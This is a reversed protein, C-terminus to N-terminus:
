KTFPLEIIFTTGHQLISQVRIKGAHNQIIRYTVMIGLGTGNEKTSVFPNGLKAIINEPIGCGNDSTTIVINNNVKNAEISIEGGTDPVADISNRILNIFVQKLQNSEGMILPLKEPILLSMKIDKIILQPQMLTQLEELLHKINIPKFEVPTPKALLLTEKVISEIHEVEGLIINLYEESLDNNSTAALQAFGKISTLPNRIEHAMGAALQGVVTLKEAQLIRNEEERKRFLLLYYAALVIILIVLIIIVGNRTLLKLNEAHFESLPQIVLLVWNAEKLPVYSFFKRKGDFPAVIDLTGEGGKSIVKFIPDNIKIKKNIEERKPHVLFKGSKTVLIPFGTNGVKFLLKKQLNELPISAGMVGLIKGNHDKVLISVTIIELGTIAGKRPDGVITNNSIIGKIFASSNKDPWTNPYKAIVDGNLDDLWYLSVQNDALMLSQFIAQIKARNRSQVQPLTSVSTLIAKINALYSDLNQALVKAMQENKKVEVDERFSYDSIIFYCMTLVPILVILYLFILSHNNKFTLSFKHSM